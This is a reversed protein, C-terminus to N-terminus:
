KLVVKAELTARDSAGGVLIRYEGPEAKWGHTTTDWFSFDPATLRIRVVRSEGPALELKSFGKLEKVPRPV